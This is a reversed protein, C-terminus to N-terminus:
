AKSHGQKSVESKKSMNISGCDVNASGIRRDAEVRRSSANDQTPIELFPKKTQPLLKKERELNPSAEGSGTGSFFALNIAPTEPNKNYRQLRAENSM